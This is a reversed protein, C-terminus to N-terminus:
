MWSVAGSSLGPFWHARMQSGYRSFFGAIATTKLLTRLAAAAAAVKNLCMWPFDITQTQPLSAFSQLVFWLWILIELRPTSKHTHLNQTHTNTSFCDLSSIIEIIKIFPVSTKWSDTSMTVCLAFVGNICFVFCVNPQFVSGLYEGIQWWIMQFDRKNNNNQKAHTQTPTHARNQAENLRLMHISISVNAHKEYPKLLFHSQFISFSFCKALKQRNSTTPKFHIHTNITLYGAEAKHRAMEM